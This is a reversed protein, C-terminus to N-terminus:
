LQLIFPVWALLIEEEVPITDMEEPNEDLMISDAGKTEVEGEDVWQLVGEEDELEVLMESPM